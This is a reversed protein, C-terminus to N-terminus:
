KLEFRRASWYRYGESAALRWGRRRLARGIMFNFFGHALVVVDHGGAAMEVLRAAAEEARVEAQRRTELGEHHDFCWWWFRAIVGWAKPSMRLWGPLRPPPLPAEVFLQDPTFARGAVVAECSEISRLRTSGVVTGAGAVLELLRGPPVQGPSLGRTEYDSWFRRYEEANLRVARSIAPEGHRALIIAGPQAAVGLRTEVTLAQAM